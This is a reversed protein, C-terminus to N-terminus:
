FSWTVVLNMYRPSQWVTGQGFYPQQVGPASEYRSHVNVVTQRDLLNYVSLRAKLDIGEVPLTWTVNAGLNTIWPMRGFAGRETFVLQRNVSGCDAV